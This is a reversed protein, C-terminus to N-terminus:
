SAVELFGVCWDEDSHLEKVVIYAWVHSEITLCWAFDRANLNLPLILPQRSNLIRTPFIM